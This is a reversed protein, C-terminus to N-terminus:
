RWPHLLFDSLIVGAKRLGDRLGEQESVEEWCSQFPDPISDEAGGWFRHFLYLFFCFVTPPRPAYSFISPPSCARQSLPLQFGLHQATRWLVVVELLGGCSGGLSKMTSDFVIWLFRQLMLCSTFPGRPFSESWSQNAKFQDIM